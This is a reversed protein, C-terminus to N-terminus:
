EVLLTACPLRTEDWAPAAVHNKFGMNDFHRMTVTQMKRGTFDFVDDIGSHYLVDGFTVTVAGSPVGTAPLVACGYPQGDFFLYARKTSVYLEWRNSYDLGILDGLEANPALGTTVEKDTPSLQEFLSFRPCQQNVDWTRHDCVQV